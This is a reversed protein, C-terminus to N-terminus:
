DYRDEVDVFARISRREPQEVYRINGQNGRNSARIDRYVQKLDDRVSPAVYDRVYPSYELEQIAIIAVRQGLFSAMDSFRKAIEVRHVHGGFRGLYLTAGWRSPRDDQVTIVKLAYDILAQDYYDKQVLLMWLRYIQWSYFNTEKDTIHSAVLKLDDLTVPVSQIYKVLQDTVDPHDSLARIVPKTIKSFYQPPVEFESCMALWELRKICYRFMRTGVKGEQLLSLSLDSLLTLSRSIPKSSRTRWMSDLVQLRRDGVDLCANVEEASDGKVIQTKGANVTLGLKRLELIMLGLARRADHRGSCVVKIDDMYRFYQYERQSM